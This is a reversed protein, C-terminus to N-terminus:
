GVLDRRSIERLAYTKKLTTLRNLDMLQWIEQQEDASLNEENQKDLLFSLREDQKSPMTIEALELIENNSCVAIRKKLEDLVIAFDREIKEAIVEDWFKM